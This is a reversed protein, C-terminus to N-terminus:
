GAAPRAPRAPLEGLDLAVSIADRLAVARLPDDGGSVAVTLGDRRLTAPTRASGGAAADARVCFIARDEAAAVVTANVAADDTCALALWADDLDSPTFARRALSVDAAALEDSIEPAVVLVDAGADLLSRVRRTAVTGGGAVVVRRGSLDLLLPFGTM